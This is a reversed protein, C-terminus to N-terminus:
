DGRKPNQGRRKPRLLVVEPGHERGSLDDRSTRFKRVGVTPRGVMQQTEIFSDLCQLWRVRRSRQDVLKVRHEPGFAKEGGRLCVSNWARVGRQRQLM